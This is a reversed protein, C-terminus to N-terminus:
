PTGGMVDTSSFAVFGPNLVDGAVGRRHVPSPRDLDSIRTPNLQDGTHV